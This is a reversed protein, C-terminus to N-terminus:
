RFILVWPAINQTERKNESTEGQIHHLLLAQLIDTPRRSPKLGLLIGGQGEQNSVQLLIKLCCSAEEPKETEGKARSGADGIGEGILVSM